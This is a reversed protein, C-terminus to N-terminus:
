NIVGCMGLDNGSLYHQLVAAVVSHSAYILPRNRSTERIHVLYGLNTLRNCLYRKDHDMITM